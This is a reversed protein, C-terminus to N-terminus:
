DEKLFDLALQEFPNQPAGSPVGQGGGGRVPVFPAAAPAPASGMSAPPSGAPTQGPAQLGYAARVLNGIARSAEEPSANKNVARYTQGFQFIAQEYQPDALDPNVTTFLNKAKQESDNVQQYSHLMSPLMRQVATMASEMVRLHLEAAIRPLVVEPETLMATADDDSLKYEGTL